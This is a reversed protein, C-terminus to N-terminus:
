AAREVPLTEALTADLRDVLQVIEDDTITYPPALLVHDGDTGDATGNSPYCILGNALAGTKIRSALGSERPFPRKTGRDAVLELAMLLGRGRIDGVNPHEGCRDVLAARLVEGQSRVRGLLQEEEIVDLVALAGACAVAHSMYTHGHALSASGAAIPAIVREAALVAGIPQYGAGLGKAVIIVDATVGEDAIALWAGTRGMGCMVEDTVLLVGHRDCVERIREFYGPVPVVCGLTAGVITEAVFAAVTGPGLRLIEADLEEALRRAYAVDSEGPDRFRYPHCPSVHSAPALLPEYIARRAPHGGISLAGLTNGHYSMRRSIFRTREPQGREVWHQRVLKLAMEMAESGSGVFAARGQGFGPPAISVLRQALAEAPENTFFSTHAFPLRAVQEQIAAVVRPHGHGLCSVAAGGSADLYRTGDRGVLWTGEGHSVLPPTVGLTRHLLATM